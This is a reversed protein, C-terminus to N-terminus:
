LSVGSRLLIFSSYLHHILLANPSVSPSFVAATIVRSLLDRAGLIACSTGEAPAFSLAKLISFSLGRRRKLRPKRQAVKKESFFTAAGWM